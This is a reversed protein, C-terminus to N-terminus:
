HRRYSPDRSGARSEQRQRMNTAVDALGGEDELASIIDLVDGEAQDRQTTRETLVHWADEESRRISEVRNRLLMLQYDQHEILALLPAVFERAVPQGMFELHGDPNASLFTVVARGRVAESTADEREAIAPYQAVGASLEAASLPGFDKWCATCVRRAGSPTPANRYEVYVTGMLDVPHPCPQAELWDAVREDTAYHADQAAMADAHEEEDPTMPDDNDMTM